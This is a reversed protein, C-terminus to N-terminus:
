DTPRVEAVAQIAAITAEVCAGLRERAGPASDDILAILANAGYNGCVGHLSHRARAAAIEDGADWALLLRDSWARLDAQTAACLQAVVAPEFDDFQERTLAVDILEM